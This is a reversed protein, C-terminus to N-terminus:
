NHKSRERCRVLFAFQYVFLALIALVVAVVVVQKCIKVALSHFYEEVAAASELQLTLFMEPALHRVVFCAAIAVVLLEAVVLPSMGTRQERARTRALAISAAGRTQVLTALSGAFLAVVSLVVVSTLLPRWAHSLDGQVSVAQRLPLGVLESSREACFLMVGFIAAVIAARTVIIM